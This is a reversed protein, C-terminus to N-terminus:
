IAWRGNAPPACEPEDGVYYARNV